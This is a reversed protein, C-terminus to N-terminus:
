LLKIVKRAFVSKVFQDHTTKRKRFEEPTLNVTNIERGIEKQIKYFVKQASLSHHKGVLLIDIDSQAGYAGQAYSGFIYAEKIGAIGKIEEKLRAELGATKLFINKYERYLPNTVNCFFYREKGKFESALVGEGQLQVLMRHVNKPDASMLRALENIYVRSGENFFFYNLIKSKIGSRLNLMM